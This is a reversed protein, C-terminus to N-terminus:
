RVVAAVVVALQRHGVLIEDLVADMAVRDRRCDPFGHGEAEDLDGLTAAAAICFAALGAQIPQREGM